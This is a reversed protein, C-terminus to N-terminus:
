RGPTLLLLLTAKLIRPLQLQVMQHLRSALRPLLPNLPSPLILMLACDSQTSVLFWVLRPVLLQLTSFVMWDDVAGATSEKPSATASSLGAAASSAGPPLPNVETATSACPNSVKAAEASKAAAATGDVPLSSADAVTPVATPDKSNASPANATIDAAPTSLQAPLLWPAPFLAQLLLRLLPLWLLPPLANSLPLPLSIRPPPSSSPSGIGSCKQSDPQKEPNTPEFSLGHFSPDKRGYNGTSRRKRARPSM